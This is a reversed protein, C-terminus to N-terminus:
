ECGVTRGGTRVVARGCGRMTGPAAGASQGGVFAAWAKESPARRTRRASLREWRPAQKEGWPQFAM